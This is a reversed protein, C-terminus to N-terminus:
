VLNAFQQFNNNMGFYCEVLPPSTMLANSCIGFPRMLFNKKLYKVNAIFKSSILKLTIAISLVISYYSILIVNGKACTKLSPSYFVFFVRNAAMYSATNAKPVSQTLRKNIYLSLFKCISYILFIKNASAM